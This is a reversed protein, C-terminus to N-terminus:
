FQFYIFQRTDFTGAIFITLIALYYVIWQIYIPYSFLKYIKKTTVLHDIFFISFVLFFSFLIEWLQLGLFTGPLGSLGDNSFPQFYHNHFNFIERIMITATTVNNARFFIWGFCVLIFLGVMAVINPIKIKTSFKTFATYCVLMAAHFLGWVIFTYNAGHWLGSVAFVIVINRFDKLFTVNEGSLPLYLYDRFWTSLSIHWRTWFEGINKSFYPQRFNMMLNFGFLRAIGFAMYSYGAFDCYIQIAFFFTAIIMSLGHWQTANNFVADVPIALRDAIVSKMFLGFLIYRLGSFIASFNIKKVEHFQHLMNQPREIPGAVLQPFFMVFLAYIGYSKEPKQKGKYVEVVYSIAQFTHFSLGIPLIINLHHLRIKVFPFIATLQNINDTFFNYYKFFFLIGLNGCLSLFLYKKKHRQEAKEIQIAAFYDITIIAFLVLLYAPIFFAYFFCSAVLLLLWRYKHSLLYFLPLVIAIFILFSFSNFLM